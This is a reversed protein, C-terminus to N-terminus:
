DKKVLDPVFNHCARLPVVLRAVIWARLVKAFM